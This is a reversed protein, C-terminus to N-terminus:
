FYATIFSKLQLRTRCHPSLLADSYEKVATVSKFLRDQSSGFSLVHQTDHFTRVGAPILTALNQDPIWQEMSVIFSVIVAFSGKM